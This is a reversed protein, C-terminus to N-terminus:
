GTQKQAVIQEWRGTREKATTEEIRTAVTGVHGSPDM